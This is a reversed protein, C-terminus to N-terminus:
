APQLFERFTEFAARNGGIEAARERLLSEALDQKLEVIDNDNEPLGAADMTELVEVCQEVFGGATQEPSWGSIQTEIRQLKKIEAAIRELTVKQLTRLTARTECIGSIMDTGKRQNRAALLNAKAVEGAEMLEEALTMEGLLTDVEHFDSNVFYRASLAHDQAKSIPTDPQEDASAKFDPTIINTQM